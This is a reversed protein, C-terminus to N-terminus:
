ASRLSVDGSLVRREPGGDPKVILAGDEDIGTATGEFSEGQGVVRVREGLTISLQRWESLAPVPGDQLYRMYWSEFERLISRFVAARDLRRGLEIDLSTACDRLDQPLGKRGLNVNLGIGLVVFEVRDIEAVMETLIGCVKRGGVIIDNPWKIGAELGTTHRIARAVAVAAVLTLRPAQPPTLAPRLIVSFWLGGGPPSAWPRGMRGRGGTQEEAVVVTGEPAGQRAMEKACDNTSAASTLYRVKTGIVKTDLGAKVAAPLLKDPAAILAYGSRPQGVIAYGERRLASIHKWVATRSIGLGDSLREGSVFKGSAGELAELIKHKM